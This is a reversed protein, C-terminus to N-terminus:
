YVPLQGYFSSLSFNEEQEPIKTSAILLELGTMM